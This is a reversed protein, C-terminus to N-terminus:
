RRSRWAYGFIGAFGLALLSSTAPEPVPVVWMGSGAHFTDGAAYFDSVAGTSIDVQVLKNHDHLGVVLNGSPLTAIGLPSGGLSTTADNGQAGTAADYTRVTQGGRVPVYITSGDNSFSMSPPNNSGAGHNIIFSEDTGYAHPGPGEYVRITGDNRGAIYVKGNNERIAEPGSAPWGTVLAGLNNGSTDYRTVSGDGWYTVLLEFNNTDSCNRCGLGISQNGGNTTTFSGTSSAPNATDNPDYRYIGKDDYSNTYLVDDPGIVVGGVGPEEPGGPGSFSRILNGEFDFHDVTNQPYGAVYLGAPAALSISCTALVLVVIGLLCLRSSFLTKKM